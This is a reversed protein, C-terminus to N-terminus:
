AFGLGDGFASWEGFSQQVQEEVNPALYYAQPWGSDCFAMADAIPVRQHVSPFRHSSLGIPAQPAIQRLRTMFRVAADPNGIYRNGELDVVLGDAQLAVARNGFAEAEGEPDRGYTYTWVWLALGSGDRLAEFVPKLLPGNFNSTGDTIKIVLHDLGVQACRAKIGAPDGGDSRALRWIWMGWTVVEGGM